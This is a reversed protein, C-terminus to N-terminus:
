QCTDINQDKKVRSYTEPSIGLYSAILYAPVNEAIYNNNSTFFHVREKATMAKIQHSFNFQQFYLEEAFLRCVKELAINNTLIQETEDNNSIALHTNELCIIQYNSHQSSTPIVIPQGSTYFGGVYENNDSIIYSYALGSLVFYGKNDPDSINKVIEKKKFYKVINHSSILRRENETLPAYKELFNFMPYLNTM